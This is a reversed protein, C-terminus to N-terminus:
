LEEDYLDQFSGEIEANNWNSAAVVRNTMLLTQYLEPTHYVNRQATTNTNM